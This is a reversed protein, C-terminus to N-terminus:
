MDDTEVFGVLDCNEGLLERAFHQLKYCLEYYTKETLALMRNNPKQYQEHLAIVGNFEGKHPGLEVQTVTGTGYFFTRERDVLALGKTMEM